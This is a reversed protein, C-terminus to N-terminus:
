GWFGPLFLFSVFADFAMMFGCFFFVIFCCIGAFGNCVMMFKGFFLLLGLLFVLCIM